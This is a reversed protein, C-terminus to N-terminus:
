DLARRVGREVAGEIKREETTLGSGAAATAVGAGAVVLAVGAVTAAQKSLHALNRLGDLGTNLDFAAVSRSPEDNELPSELEDDCHPCHVDFLSAQFGCSSCTLGDSTSSSDSNM